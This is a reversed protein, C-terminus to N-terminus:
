DGGEECDQYKSITVDIDDITHDLVTTIFKSVDTMINFVFANHNYGCGELKVLYKM